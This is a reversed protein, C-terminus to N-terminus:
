EQCKSRPRRVILLGGVQLPLREPERRHGVLPGPTVHSLAVGQRHHLGDVPLGEAVGAKVLVVQELHPKTNLHRTIALPM